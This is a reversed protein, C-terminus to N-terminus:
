LTVSSGLKSAAEALDAITMVEAGGLSVYWQEPCDFEAVEPEGGSADLTVQWCVIVTHHEEQTAVQVRADGETMVSIVPNSGREDIRMLWTTNWENYRWVSLEDDTAGLTLWNGCLGNRKALAGLDEDQRIALGGFCEVADSMATAANLISADRADSVIHEMGCGSLAVTLGVVIAAAVGARRRLRIRHERTIEESM